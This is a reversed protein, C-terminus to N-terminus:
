KKSADIWFRAAYYGIMMPGSSGGTMSFSQGSYGKLWPQYVNFSSPNLLSIVYHQQAVYLNEDAVIQKVQDITTAALAAPYFADYVPDSTMVYNSANGTAFKILQRFPQYSLGLFGSSRYALADQAHQTRVFNTWAGPLMQTINMTVGIQAFDDQVIQLLGLDGSSDAVCDTVFPTKVGAAALLAKAAPVDYAYTDKVAQPWDAYPLGWGKLSFSTLGVPDSPCTGHFYNAAIDALDISKQLAERVKIDNFPAKDNRPDVTGGQVGPVTLQVIEPNTRKIDQANQYSINEMCDIKGTRVAALGTSADPMILITLKDIYPISNQPHREDVGYYNPNKVLTASGGLVYDTLIFPGTGIAHHWDNLDGWQNVAESACFPDEGVAEMSELIFEVNSTNFQFVVTYDGDATVSTLSTTLPNSALFPSPKTFGDGHGFDRGYNYVVDASTFLRGNVPPINQWHVGQRLHVVYTGAGTFEWSSALTGTVYDPPRFGTSFDFTAPNLAWDDGYLGEMYAGMLTALSSSSAPDWLGFDLPSYDTLTGGPQPTGLSDWWNGTTTTTTPSTATAKTTTTTATNTTTTTTKTTTTTTTTSSTTKTTCSALVLSAVLIFTLVMWTIGRKM